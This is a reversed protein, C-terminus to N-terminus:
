AIVNEGLLLFMQGIAIVIFNMLFKLHRYLFFFIWDISLFARAAFLSRATCIWGASAVGGVQLYTVMAIRGNRGADM